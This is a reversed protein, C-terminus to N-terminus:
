KIRDFLRNFNLYLILASVDKEQEPLAKWKLAAGKSFEKIKNNNM